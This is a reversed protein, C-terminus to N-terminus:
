ASRAVAPARITNHKAAFPVAASAFGRAAAQRTRNPSNAPATLRRRLRASSLPIDATSMEIGYRALVAPLLEGIPRPGPISDNM